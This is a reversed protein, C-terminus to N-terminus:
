RGGPPRRLIRRIADLRATGESLTPALWGGEDFENWAYVIVSRAAAKSPHSKIWELARGLHEAIEAPTAALAYDEMGGGPSPSAEWPVPHEVRPRRDWGTTVLPVVSAGSDAWRTWLGEVTQALDAYSMTRGGSNIAYSSVADGALADLWQKAKRPDGDMIVVYPRALGRGLAKARLDDLTRRFGEIADPWAALHRDDIFGVYLLPRSGLVTRYGAQRMLELVRDAFQPTRWRDCETILCFRLSSRRGSCLYRRLGLSMPDDTSYTVFAWYDLGASAAWEIERDIVDQSVGDLRVRGPGTIKAFFPLRGYWKAPGLTQEVARGAEGRDGHWADWRIAGVAPADNPSGCGQEQGAM